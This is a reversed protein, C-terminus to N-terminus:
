VIKKSAHFVLVMLWCILDMGVSLASLQLLRIVLLVAIKCVDIAYVGLLLLRLHFHNSVLLVFRHILKLVPLVHIKVYSVHRGLLLM